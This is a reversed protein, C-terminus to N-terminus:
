HDVIADHSGALLRLLETKDPDVVGFQELSKKCDQLFAIWEGESIQMGAHVTTLDRGSYIQPGGSIMGIYQAMYAKLRVTDDPAAPWTHPHGARTLNVSPNRLSREIWDDVIATIEPQGGLRQYLTTQGPPLAPSDKLPTHLGLGQGGCGCVGALAAVIM